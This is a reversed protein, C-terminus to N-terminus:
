NDRLRFAGRGWGREDNEWVKYRAKRRNWGNGNKYVKSSENEWGNYKWAGESASRKDSKGMKM